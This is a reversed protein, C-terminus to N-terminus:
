KLPFMSIRHREPGSAPLTKIAIRKGELWDRVRDLHYIMKHGDLIIKQSPPIM